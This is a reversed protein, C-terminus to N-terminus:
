WCRTDGVPWPRAAGHKYYRISVANFVCLSALYQDFNAVKEYGVQM